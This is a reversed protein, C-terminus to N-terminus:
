DGRGRSRAPLAASDWVETPPRCHVHAHGSASRQYIQGTGAMDGTVDEGGLTAYAWVITALDVASIAGLDVRREIHEAFTPLLGPHQHGFRAFSYLISAVESSSTAALVHPELARDAM